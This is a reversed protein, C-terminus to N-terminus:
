EEKLINERERERKFISLLKKIERVGNSPGIDRSFPVHSLTGLFTM